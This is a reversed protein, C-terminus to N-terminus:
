RDFDSLSKQIEVILKRMLFFLLLVFRGHEFRARALGSDGGLDFGGNARSNDHSIKRGKKCKQQYVAIVVTLHDPGHFTIPSLSEYEESRYPAVLEPKDLIKAWALMQQHTM